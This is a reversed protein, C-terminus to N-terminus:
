TTLRKPDAVKKLSKMTPFLEGVEVNLAAAIRILNIASVNRDGREVGGFYSRGLGMENAFNEQSYGKALRLERIQKGLAVLHPHRKMWFRYRFSM